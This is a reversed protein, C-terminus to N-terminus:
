PEFLCGAIEEMEPSCKETEDLLRTCQQMMTMYPCALAPCQFTLWKVSRWPLSGAYILIDRPSLHLQVLSHVLHGLSTTQQYSRSGHPYPPDEDLLSVRIEGKEVVSDYILRLASALIEPTGKTLFFEYFLLYQEESKIQEPDGKLRPLEAWDQGCTSCTFPPMRRQFLRLRTGCQCSEVFMVQHQPCTTLYPLTLTRTLLRSEAVCAPCLHFSLSSTLQMPHPEQTQYFRSLEALYTTAIIAGTQLALLRALSQLPLASSPVILNLLDLSIVQGKSVERLLHTVTTGSQWLNMEDCRLLLGALWEHPLPAVLHPFTRQWAPDSIHIRPM